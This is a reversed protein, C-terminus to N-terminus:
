RYMFLRKCLLHSNRGAYIVTSFRQQDHIVIDIIMNRHNKRKAEFKEETMINECPNRNCLFRTLFSAIHLHHRQTDIFSVNM